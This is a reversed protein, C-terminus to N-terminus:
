SVVIILTASTTTTKKNTCSTLGLHHAQNKRHTAFESVVIVIVINM